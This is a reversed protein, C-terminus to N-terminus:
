DRMNDPWKIVKDLGRMLLGEALVLVAAQILAVPLRSLLVVQYPLHKLQSMWLSMLGLSCILTDLAITLSIRSMNLKRTPYTSVLGALLGRLAFTLTIGVHPMLGGTNIFIGLLDSVGALALGWIPGLLYGGFHIPVLALSFRSSGVYVALFRSLVLNLAILLGALALKQIYSIKHNQVTQDLSNDEKGVYDQPALIAYPLAKNKLIIKDSFLRSSAHRLPLSAL